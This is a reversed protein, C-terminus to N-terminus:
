ASNSFIEIIIRLQKYFKYILPKLQIPFACTINENKFTAQDDQSRFWSPKAVNGCFKSRLNQAANPGNTVRCAMPGLTDTRFLCTPVSSQLTVLKQYKQWSILELEFCYNLRHKICCFTNCYQKYPLQDLFFNATRSSVFIYRHRLVKAAYNQPSLCLLYLLWYGSRKHRM